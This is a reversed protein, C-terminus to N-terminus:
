PNSHFASKIMGPFDMESSNLCPNEEKAMLGKGKAKQGLGSVPNVMFM